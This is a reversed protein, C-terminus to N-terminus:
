DNIFDLAISKESETFNIKSKKFTPRGMGTMNSAAVHEKPMGMFNTDIDGNENEDHFVCIAYNGHPIDKFTHSVKSQAQKVEARFKAKEVERPFGDEKDFLLFIVQGKGKNKVVDVSIILDGTEQAFVPTSLFFLAAIFFIRKM